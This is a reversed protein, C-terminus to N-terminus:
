KKALEILRNIESRDVSESSMNSPKTMMVGDSDLGEDVLGELTQAIEAVRSEDMGSTGRIRPVGHAYYFSFVGNTIPDRYYLTDSYDDKPVQLNKAGPLLDFNIYGLEHIDGENPSRAPKVPEFTIEQENLPM